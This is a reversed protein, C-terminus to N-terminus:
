QSIRLVMYVFTAVFAALLSFYSCYIVKVRVYNLRRVTEWKQDEKPKEMQKATMFFRKADLQLEILCLLTTIAFFTMAVLLFFKEYYDFGSVDKGTLTFFFVGTSLSSFSLIYEKLRNGAEKAKNHFKEPM